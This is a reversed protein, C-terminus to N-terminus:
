NAFLRIYEDPLTLRFVTPLAKRGLAKYIRMAASVRMRRKETKMRHLQGSDFFRRLAAVNERIFQNPDVSSAEKLAKRIEKKSERLGYRHKIADVVIDQIEEKTFGLEQLLNLFKETLTVDGGYVVACFKGYSYVDKGQKRLGDIFDKVTKEGKVKDLRKVIKDKWLV